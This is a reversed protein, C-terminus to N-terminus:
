ILSVILEARLGQSGCGMDQVTVQQQRRSLAGQWSPQCTAELTDPVYVSLGQFM